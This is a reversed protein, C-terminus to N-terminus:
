GLLGGFLGKFMSQLGTEQTTIKEINKRNKILSDNSFNIIQNNRQFNSVDGGGGRIPKSIKMTLTEDSGNNFTPSLARSLGSTKNNQILIQRELRKNKQLANHLQEERLDLDRRLSVIEEFLKRRENCLEDLRDQTDNEQIQPTNSKLIEFKEKENILSKKLDEIQLDKFKMEIAVSAREEEINKVKTDLQRSLLECESKLNEIEIDKDNIKKLFNEAENSKIQFKESLLALQAQSDLLQLSEFPSDTTNIFFDNSNPFEFISTM